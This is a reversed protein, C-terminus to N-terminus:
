KIEHKEKLKNVIDRLEQSKTEKSIRPAFYVNIERRRFLKKKNEGKYKSFISGFVGDIFFPVIVGDSSYSIMEYGRYFKGLEGDKTIRGEPYLAVVKGDELRKSAVKFADKSGKASLPIVDGIKFFHNLFKWDFIDKEMLFNIHRKLGFQLIMWDIWSVHNGLLLISGNQPINELGFYNYKHRSIFVVKIVRWFIIVFYKKYTKKIM